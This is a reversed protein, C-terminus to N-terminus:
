SAGGARAAPTRGSRGVIEVSSFRDHGLGEGQTNKGQEEGEAERGGAHGEERGDGGCLVGRAAARGGFGRTRAFAALMTVPVAGVAAFAARIAGARAAGTRAAGTVGARGALAGIAGVALAFGAALAAVAGGAAARVSGSPQSCSPNLEDRDGGGARPLPNPPPHPSCFGVLGGVGA